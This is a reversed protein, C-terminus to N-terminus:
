HKSQNRLLTEAHAAALAPTAIRTALAPWGPAMQSAKLHAKLDASLQEPDIQRSIAAVVLALAQSQAEVLEALLQQLHQENM